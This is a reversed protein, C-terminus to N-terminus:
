VLRSGVSDRRSGRARVAFASYDCRRRLVRARASLTRVRSLSGSNNSPGRCADAVNM